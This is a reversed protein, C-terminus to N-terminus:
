KSSGSSPSKTHSHSSTLCPPLSFSLSPRLSHLVSSSFPPAVIDFPPHCEGPGEARGGERGGEREGERGGELPVGGQGIREGAPLNNRTGDGRGESTHDRSTV